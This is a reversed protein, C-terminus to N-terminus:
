RRSRLLRMAARLPRTLRWSSSGLVGRLRDDVASLHEDKQAVLARAYELDAELKPLGALAAETVMLREAIELQDSNREELEAIQGRLDQIVAAKEDVVYFYHRLSLDSTLTASQPMEPLEGDGAVALTFMEKGIADEVEKHVPVEDLPAGDGAEFQEDALIASTLYPHQRMLKVNEFRTALAAELEDPLYEHVHHPNIPPHMERNPSSILLIGDPALVRAMEDLAAPQNEIHEIVEFCVVLDFTADEYPLDRVDGADLQVGEPMEAEVAELVAKAIDVGHTARAGARALMATGYGVGCGADLIRRDAALSSAWRYRAIHDAEILQGRMEDPVFREPVDDRTGALDLDM